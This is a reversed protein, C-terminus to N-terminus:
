QRIVGFKKCDARGLNEARDVTLTVIVKNAISM